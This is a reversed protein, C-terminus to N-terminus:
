RPDIPPGAAIRASSVNFFNLTEVVGLEAHFRHPHYLNDIEWGKDQYIVLSIIKKAAHHSHAIATKGTWNIVRHTM